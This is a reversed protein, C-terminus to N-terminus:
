EGQQIAKQKGSHKYLTGILSREYHNFLPHNWSQPIAGKQFEEETRVDVIAYKANASTRAYLDEMFSAHIGVVGLDTQAPSASVSSALTDTRGDRGNKTNHLNTPM